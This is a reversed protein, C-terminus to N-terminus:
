FSRMTLPLYIVNEPAAVAGSGWFGSGVTYVGGSMLGAGSQGITGGLSYVGGTGSTGGGAAVTNWSLDYGGGSQALVISCALLLGALATLLRPRKM